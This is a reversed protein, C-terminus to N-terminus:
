IALEENEDKDLSYLEQEDSIWYIHSGAALLSIVADKYDFGTVSWQHDLGLSRECIWLHCGDNTSKNVALQLKVGAMVIRDYDLSCASVSNVQLIPEWVKRLYLSQVNHIYLQGNKEILVLPGWSSLISQVEYEALYTGTTHDYPKFMRKRSRKLNGQLLCPEFSNGGDRLFFWEAELDLFNNTNTLSLDEINGTWM